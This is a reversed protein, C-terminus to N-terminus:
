GSRASGDRPPCTRGSVCTPGSATATSRSPTAVARGRGRREDDGLGEIIEVKYPQGAFRELAEARSVEERIFPVDAAVLERM